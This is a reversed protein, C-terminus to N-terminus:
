AVDRVDRLVARVTREVAWAPTELCPYDGSALTCRPKECPHCPLGVPEVAVSGAAGTRAAATSTHVVVTPRGVARAFHAPGSDTTVFVACHELTAAFDPLSTGVVRPAGGAVGALREGEGPGAYFVVQLGAAVLREALRFWGTWERSRGGRSLPNLGVHGSPVCASRGRLGYSPPGHVTGGARAALAAYTKARHTHRAVRDTLLRPVWTRHDTPTGIVRTCRWAELAARLSTPFLVATDARMAGRPVVTAEVEAYLEAGWRPAHIVLTDLQSLAHMAPLAM